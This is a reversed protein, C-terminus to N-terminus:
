AHTGGGREKSGGFSLECGERIFLLFLVRGSWRARAWVAMFCAFTFVSSYGCFSWVCVCAMSEIMGRLVCLVGECHLLLAVAARRLLFPLAM